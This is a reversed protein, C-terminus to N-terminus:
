RRGPPWLCAEAPAHEDVVCILTTAGPWYMSPRASVIVSAGLATARRELAHLQEGDVQYPELTLVRGLAAHNWLRPHDWTPGAFLEVEGDYCCGDCTRTVRHRTGVVVRRLCPPAWVRELGYWDAARRHHLEPDAAGDDRSERADQHLFVPSRSMAPWAPANM